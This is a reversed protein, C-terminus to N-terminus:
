PGPNTLFEALKKAAFLVDPRTCIATYNISSVRQRYTYIEQATAQGKYPMLEMSSLPTKPITGTTWSFSNSIKEIYADQCIAIRKEERYQVIRM